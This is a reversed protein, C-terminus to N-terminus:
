PNSKQKLSNLVEYAAKIREANPIKKNMLMVLGFNETHTALIAPKIAAKAQDPNLNLNLFNLMDPLSSKVGYAQADFARATVRLPHNNQDYGFAYNGQQAKPVQVYTHQLELKPFIVQELLASFPMNMAKATAEGFLGISPNSYQRFQGIPKKVKWDQFYKLTQADTKIQDPFQLPLNGSTYTALELLTVQNIDSNKLAPIYKGPHDQLSIKGLNQAYTSVSGLEFLTNKNVAKANALSQVGYYKEYSKGNYLVGIAMGPVAYTKMLPQFATNMATEVKISTAPIENANVYTTLSMSGILVCFITKTKNLVVMGVKEM